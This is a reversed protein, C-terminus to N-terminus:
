KCEIEVIPSLNDILIHGNYAVPTLNAYYAEITIYTHNEKPRLVFRYHKWGSNEVPHSQGILEKQECAENGGWIRLVAPSIFSVLAYNSRRTASKYAESRAMFASFSYCSDKKMPKGLKQSVSEYSGNYRVVLGLYTEGDYPKLAVSWANSKEGHIDPPTEAPFQFHGCDDWGKIAPTYPTGARPTDEFSPNDLHITIQGSLPNINGLFGSLIIFIGVFSTAAKM